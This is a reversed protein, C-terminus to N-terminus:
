WGVPLWGTLVVENNINGKIRMTDCLSPFKRRRPYWIFRTGMGPMHGDMTENSLIARLYM